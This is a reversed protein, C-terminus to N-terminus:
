CNFIEKLPAEYRTKILKIEDDVDPVHLCHVLLFRGDSSLDAAVTGPTLSITSALMAIAFEHDIDLPVKIFGPQLKDAPGLIRKMLILNAIVVDWVVMVLFRLAVLPKRLTLPEPWFSQTLWPIMWGLLMGLVLQGADVSNNLLMWVVVMGLSFMPHPFWHRSGPPSPHAKSLENNEFKNKM